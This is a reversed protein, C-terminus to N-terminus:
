SAVAALGAHQVKQAALSRRIGEGADDYLDSADFTPESQVGVNVKVTAPAMVGITPKGAHGDRVWDRHWCNKGYMGAECSCFLVGGDIVQTVTHDLGRRTRSKVTWTPARTIIVGSAAAAATIPYSQVPTQTAM